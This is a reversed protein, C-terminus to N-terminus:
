IKNSINCLVHYVYDYLSNESLWCEWFARARSAIYFCENDNERCWQIREKLDSLDFAVPVFHVWPVLQKSFWLDPATIGPRSSIKLMLCGSSLIFSLRNAASHGDVYILYKYKLQEDENLFYKKGVRMTHQIQCIPTYSIIGSSVKDRINWCTLAADLLPVPESIHDDTKTEEEWTYSLTSLIMRTNINPDAPGTAAGRFLATEKKANWPVNPHSNNNNLSAVRIDAVSVFPIDAYEAGVYASLIPMLGSHLTSLQSQSNVRYMYIHPDRGDIRVQPTDRKNLFFEVDPVNKSNCINILLQRYELLMSDGWINKPMVNCIIHANAWWYPPELTNEIIGTQQKKMKLYESYTCEQGNVTWTLNEHWTNVFHPNVFPAFMSLSGNQIRVYIGCRCVNYLYHLTSLFSTSGTTYQLQSLGFKQALPHGNNIHSNDSSKRLPPLLRRPSVILRMIQAWGTSLTICHHFNGFDPNTSRSEHTEQIPLSGYIGTIVYDQREPPFPYAQFTSESTTSCM